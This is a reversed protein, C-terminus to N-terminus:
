ISVKQYRPLNVPDILLWVFQSQVVAHQITVKAKLMSIRQDRAFHVLYGAIAQKDM